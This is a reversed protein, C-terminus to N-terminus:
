YVTLGQCLVRDENRLVFGKIEDFDLTLKGDVYRQTFRDILFTYEGVQLLSDTKRSEDLALQIDVSTSWGGCVEADIRLGYGEAIELQALAQRAPDTIIVEM